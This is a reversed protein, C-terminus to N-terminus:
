YNNTRCTNDKARRWFPKGRCEMPTV